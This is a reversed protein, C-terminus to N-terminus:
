KGGFLGALGKVTDAGYKDVLEKVEKAAKVATPTGDTEAAESAAATKTAAKGKMKTKYSSIEVPKIEKLGWKKAKNEGNLLEALQMPTMDPHEALGARIVNAKTVKDAM